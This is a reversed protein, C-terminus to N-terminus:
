RTVSHRFWIHSHSDRVNEKEEVVPLNLQSVFSVILKNQLYISDLISLYTCFLYYFALQETVQPLPGNSRM